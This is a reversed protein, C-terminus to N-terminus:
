FRSFAAEAGAGARIAVGTADGEPVHVVEVKGDELILGDNGTRWVDVGDRRFKFARPYFEDCVILGTVEVWPAVLRFIPAIDGIQNAIRENHEVLVVGRLFLPHKIDPEHLQTYVDM